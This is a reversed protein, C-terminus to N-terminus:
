LPGCLSMVTTVRAVPAVSSRVSSPVVYLWSTKSELGAHDGFPSRITKRRCSLRELGSGLRVPMQVTEDDPPLRVLITAVPSSGLQDGSPLCIMKALPLP